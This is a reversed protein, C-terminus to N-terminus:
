RIATTATGCSATTPGTNTRYLLEMISVVANDDVGFAAGDSGVNVTASGLGTSSVAFGYSKATNGALGSNTVYVALAVAM